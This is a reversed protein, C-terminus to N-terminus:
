EDGGFLLERLRALLLDAGAPKFFLDRDTLGVRLLAESLVLDMSGTHVLFKRCLGKGAAALIFDEGSLGPLRMDVVAADAPQRALDALAQEASHASSVSFEDFDEFFNTLLALIREEDDILILRAPKVTNTM